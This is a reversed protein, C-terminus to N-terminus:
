GSGVLELSGSLERVLWARAPLPPEDERVRRKDVRKQLVVEREAKVEDDDDVDQPLRLRVHPRDRFGRADLDHVHVLVHAVAEVGLVKVMHDLTACIPKQVNVIVLEEEDVRGRESRVDLPDLPLV